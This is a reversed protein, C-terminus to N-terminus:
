FGMVFDDLITVKCLSFPWIEKRGVGKMAMLGTNLTLYWIAGPSSLKYVLIM